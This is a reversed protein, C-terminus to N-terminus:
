SSAARLAGGVSAAAAAGTLAVSADASSAPARVVAPAARPVALAFPHNTATRRAKAHIKKFSIKERVRGALHTVSFVM